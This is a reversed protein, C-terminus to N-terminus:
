SAMNHSHFTNKNRSTKYGTCFFGASVDAVFILLITSFRYIFIVQILDKGFNLQSNKM